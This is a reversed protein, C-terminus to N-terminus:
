TTSAVDQLLADVRGQIVEPLGIGSEQIVANVAKLQDLLPGSKDSNQSRISASRLLSLAACQAMTSQAAKIAKNARRGEETAELVSAGEGHLLAYVMKAKALLAEFATLQAGFAKSNLKKLWAAEDAGLVGAAERAKEIKEADEELAILLRKTRFDLMKQATTAMAEFATKVGAVATEDGQM